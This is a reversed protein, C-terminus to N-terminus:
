SHDTTTAPLLGLHQARLVATLRDTADLKRYLNEKHKRVTNPSINLRRAIATTSLAEVLQSLIVAERPTLRMAAAAASHDRAAPLTTQQWADLHHLHVDLGILLPQLRRALAVDRETFDTDARLVSVARQTQGSMTLPLILHHQTGVLERQKARAVTRRWVRPSVLDSIKLPDMTGTAAYHICLPHDAILADHMESGVPIQYTTWEPLMGLVEGTTRAYDIKTFSFVDANFLPGLMEQGVLQWVNQPEPSSLIQTALQVMRDYDHASLSTV